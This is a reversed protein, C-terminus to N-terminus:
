QPAKRMHIRNEIFRRNPSQKRAYVRIRAQIVSSENLRMALDKPLQQRMTRAVIDSQTAMFAKKPSIPLAIVCSSDEIGATFICPHDSLLLEYPADQFNWLWWKMSLIKNGYHPNAVLEHFFSLGFNEILGPFQKETWEELTKPDGDSYLAEYEEPKEKLDSKLHETAEQQLMHVINPQRIRLSMLFCAWDVRDKQTLYKLGQHELKRRVRAANNDVRKLFLKEIAQKEMRGVVEKTLAYLDDDFGTHKPTHRSSPLNKLDFRFVEIKGDQNNEAWPSLLFQPVYHHRM